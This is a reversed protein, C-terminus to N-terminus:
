LWKQDFLLTSCFQTLGAIKVIRPQYEIINQKVSKQSGGM